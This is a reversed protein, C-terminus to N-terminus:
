VQTVRLSVTGLDVLTDMPLGQAPDYVGAGVKVAQGSQVLLRGDKLNLVVPKEASEARLHCASGAGVVLQRDLLVVRKVDARVLRSGTMELVGTTSAAHPLRFRFRCRPSLEIKDGDNLLKDNTAKGNVKVPQPSRLFYDEQSRQITVVPASPDAILGVDPRQPSSVPGVTVASQCSALASGAGDVQILFQKPLVGHSGGTENVGHHYAIPTMPKADEAGTQANNPKGDAHSPAFGASHGPSYDPPSILGLPGDELADRSEIIRDALKIAEDVWKAGPLLAKVKRLGRGASRADGRRMADSAHAVQGVADRMERVGLDDGAAPAVARLIAQATDVRGRQMADRVKATADDSLRGALDDVRRDFPRLRRAEAIHHGAAAWDERELATKGRELAADAKARHLDLEQEAQAVRTSEGNVGQLMAVGKSYFGERAHKRAADLKMDRQEADSRKRSMQEVVRGRLEAVDEQHGGLSGAKDCDALAEHLRGEDLHAQGRKVYAKVLKTALRQGHRHSRVSDRSLLDHAEDLRGDALAFQAQKVRLFNM